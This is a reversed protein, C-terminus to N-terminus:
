RAASRSPDRAWPKGADEAEVDARYRYWMAVNTGVLGLLGLVLMAVPSTGLGRDVLAGVLGFLLPTLVLNMAQNLGDGLGQQWGPARDGAGRKPDVDAGGHGQATAPDVCRKHFVPEHLVPEHLVAQSRNGL